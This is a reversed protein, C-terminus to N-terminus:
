IIEKNEKISSVIFDLKIIDALDVLDDYGEQFIFDDLAITYGGNKLETCAKIVEMTPKVNELLEIVLQDKSFLYAIKGKILKETFNVFARKSGILTDMGISTLSNSMVNLTANDGDIGTYEGQGEERYLLEYAYVTKDKNFIPQRAIFSSM